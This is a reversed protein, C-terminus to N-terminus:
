NKRLLISHSKSIKILGDKKFGAKEAYSLSQEFDDLGVHGKPEAFLLYAGPKLMAFLNKFLEERNPVEHAVAFLLGFDAVQNMGNMANADTILRPEVIDNLKAKEARSVLKELMKKQIDFCYVRGQNGVMKAMPLSFFGMASGYDIVKMGPKLFNNLIKEPDHMFKRIPNILFYGLWWPCVLQKEM